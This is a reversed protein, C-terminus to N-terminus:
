FVGAELGAALTMGLERCAEIHDTEIDGAVIVADAVRRWALGSVIREIARLAGRGDNGAKIILAYPLGQTHEICEYYISDFFYKLAGSMYGFNEPTGLLLAEAWRVDAPTAELAERVRCEVGDIAPDRAGALAAEVLTRTGGTKSHYVILLHKM